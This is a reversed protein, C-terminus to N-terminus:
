KSCREMEKKEEHHRSTDQYVLKPRGIPMNNGKFKFESPRRQKSTRDM